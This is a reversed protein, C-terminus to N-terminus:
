EPRGGIYDRGTIRFGYDRKHKRSFCFLSAMFGILARTTSSWITCWLGLQNRTTRAHLSIRFCGGPNLQLEGELETVVHSWDFIYQKEFYGSCRPSVLSDFCCKCNQQDHFVSSGWAGAKPWVLNGVSLFKTHWTLCVLALGPGSYVKSVLRDLCIWIQALHSVLCVNSLWNKIDTQYPFEKIKLSLVCFFIKQHLTQCVAKLEWIKLEIDWTKFLNPPFFPLLIILNTNSANKFM